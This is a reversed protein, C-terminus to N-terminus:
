EGAAKEDKGSEEGEDSSIGHGGFPDSTEPADPHGRLKVPAKGAEEAPREQLFLRGYENEDEFVPLGIERCFRELKQLDIIEASGEKPVASWDDCFFCIDIWAVPKWDRDYFVFAHHPDYCEVEGDEDSETAVLTRLTEIQPPSLRVTTAQIIGKHLTRDKFVIPSGREDRTYDYCYAAVHAFEVGPWSEAPEKASLDGGLLALCWLFRAKM